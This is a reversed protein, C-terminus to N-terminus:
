QLGPVPHATAGPKPALWHFSKEISSVLLKSNDLPAMVKFGFTRPKNSAIEGLVPLNPLSELRHLTLTDLARQLTFARSVEGIPGGIVSAEVRPIEGAIEISMANLPLNASGAGWLRMDDGNYRLETIKLVGKEM